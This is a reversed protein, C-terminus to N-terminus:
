HYNADGPPPASARKADLAKRVANRLGTLGEENFLEGEVAPTCVEELADYTRLLAQLTTEDLKAASGHLWLIGHFAQLWVLADLAQSWRTYDISRALPRRLIRTATSALEDVRDLWVRRQEPGANVLVWACSETLEADTSAFYHHGKTGRSESDGGPDLNSELRKTLLTLWLHAVADDELKGGDVLPLLLDRTTSGSWSGELPGSQRRVLAQLQDAAMGAPWHAIMERFLTRRLQAVAESEREERNAQIRLEHVLEALAHLHEDPSLLRLLELARETDTKLLANESDALAHVGMARFLPLPATLLAQLLKPPQTVTVKLALEGVLQMLLQMVVNVRRDLADHREEQRLTEWLQHALACLRGPEVRLLTELSYMVSYQRWGYSRPPHRLLSEADALAERFSRNFLHEYGAVEPEFRTKEPDLLGGAQFASLLYTELRPILAAGAAHEALKLVEDAHHTHALWEGFSSWLATFRAPDAELLAQTFLPLHRPLLEGEPSLVSEWGGPGFRSELTPLDLNELSADDLMTALFLGPSPSAHASPEKREAERLARSSFLEIVGADNVTPSEAALLASVYQNVPELLDSPIPTILLPHKKTLGQISNSLHFGSTLEGSEDFILLYRDHFLQRSGGHISRLDYITFRLRRLLVSLQDCSKKIRIARTPESTLSSDNPPREKKPAKEEDEGRKQSNTLVAYEIHTGKARAFLEVGFEDFYPDVLLIQKSGIEDTLARLWEAFSLRGEEEWGKPFFGGGSKEPFLRRALARASQSAASRRSQPKGAHIQNYSVQHIKRVNAARDSARTNELKKLWPSEISGELGVLGMTIHAQAIPTCDRSFWIRWPANEDERTWIEILGRGEPEVGEFHVVAPGNAEVLRCEDFVVGHTSEVRCRVLFPQGSGTAPTPLTVDFAELERGSPSTMGRCRISVRAKENEAMAPFALWEINGLRSADARRFDLGTESGLRLYCDKALEDAAPWPEEENRAWLWSKDLLILSTSYAPVESNPSIPPRLEPRLPWVVGRSELFITPGVDLMQRAAAESPALRLEGGKKPASLGLRECAEALTRGECLALVVKLITKNHDLLSLQSIRYSAGSPGLSHKGSIQRLSWGGNERAPSPLIWGYLLKYETRESQQLGLVWCTLQSFAQPAVGMVPAMRPDRIRLNLEEQLTSSRADHSAM